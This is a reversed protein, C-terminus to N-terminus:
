YGVVFRLIYMLTLMILIHQVTSVVGVVFVMRVLAFHNGWYPFLILLIVVHYLTLATLLVCFFFTM